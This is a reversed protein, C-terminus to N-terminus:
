AINRERQDGMVAVVLCRLRQKDRKLGELGKFRKHVDRAGKM